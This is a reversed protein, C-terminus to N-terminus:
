KRKIEGPLHRVKLCAYQNPCRSASVEYYDMKMDGEVVTLKYNPQAWAKKLCDAFFDTKPSGDPTRKFQKWTEFLFYTGAELRVIVTGNENTKITDICKNDRYVYFKTNTLPKEKKSEEVMEPTPKAGGCYPQTYKIELEMKYKVQSFGQMIFLSFFIAFLKNM